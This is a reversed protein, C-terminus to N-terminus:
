CTGARIGLLHLGPRDFVVPLPVSDVAQRVLEAGVVLRGGLV